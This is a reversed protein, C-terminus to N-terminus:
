TCARERKQPRVARARVRGSQKLPAEPAPRSVPERCPREWKRQGSSQAVLGGPEFLTLHFM